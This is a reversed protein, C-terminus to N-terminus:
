PQVAQVAQAVQEAEHETLAATYHHAVRILANGLAIAEDPTACMSLSGFGLVVPRTIRALDTSLVEILNRNVLVEERVHLAPIIGHRGSM